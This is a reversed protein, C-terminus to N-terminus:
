EPKVKVNWVLGLKEMPWVFSYYACDTSDRKALMSHDHHDQHNGESVVVGFYPYLLDLLLFAPYWGTPSGKHNAAKCTDGPVDPPHNAINFWLTITQCIWTSTYSVFLGERGFLQYAVLMEVTAVAFSWTDLIRLYWTDNHKPVFEEDVADHEGFFRFAREVGMQIPSHPDRPMDCYKHHCRHQSAWWVPGGQHAMCGLVNLFLQTIPGCKFAAHAAYRHLCVSMCVGVRWMAILVSLVITEIVHSQLTAPIVLLCTLYCPVAVVCFNHRMGHAFKAMLVQLIFLAAFVHVPTPSYGNTWDQFTLLFASFASLDAFKAFTAGASVALFIPPIMVNIGMGVENVHMGGRSYWPGKAQKSTKAHHDVAGNTSKNSKNASAAHSRTGTKGGVASISPNTAELIEGKLQGGKGM